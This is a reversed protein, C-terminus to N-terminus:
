LQHTSPGPWNVRNGVLDDATQSLLGHKLQVKAPGPRSTPCVSVRLLAMSQRVGRVVEYSAGLVDTALSESEFCRWIGLKKRPIHQLVRDLDFEEKTLPKRMGCLPTGADSVLPEERPDHTKICGFQISRFNEGKPKDKNIM